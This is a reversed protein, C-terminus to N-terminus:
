INKTTQCMSHTNLNIWMSVVGKAYCKKRVDEVKKRRNTEM